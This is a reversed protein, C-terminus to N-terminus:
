CRQMEPSVDVALISSCKPALAISCLGTGAGYDLLKPRASNGIEREVARVIDGALARRREDADWGAAKRDFHEAINAASM